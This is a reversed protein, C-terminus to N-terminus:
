IFADLLVVTMFAVSVWGNVTFFAKNLKSLDDPKILKHEYVLFGAVVALGTFYIFGLKPNVLGLAILFTLTLAHFLRAAKVAGKVGLLVALSKLGVKKDFEYDQLAYLVDFGAVWFAMALGLLVASLSVRANLAVDVAVPILFYVAGLFFHPFYTFRKAYPYLWLLLVVAPALKFALENLRYSAYFFLAASFLSLAVVEKKSVLGSALPWNRTRPNLRDYPEDILRNLAMGLTRASVLAVLIWFLKEPEPFRDALLVASGVAFPLAFVTHELKVLEAYLKLRKM